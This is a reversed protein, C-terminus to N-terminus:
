RSRWVRQGLGAVVAVPRSAQLPRDEKSSNEVCIESHAKLIYSVNQDQGVSVRQHRGKASPISNVHKGRSGGQWGSLDWRNTGEFM